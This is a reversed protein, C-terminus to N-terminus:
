HIHKSMDKHPIGADMYTDGFTYYGLKEYFSLAHTQAGLLLIGGEKKSIHLEIENMLYRGHGKGRYEKLVAVRQIKFKKKEFEHIRATAIPKMKDYLIVHECLPELEDVELEEPVQQEDVFVDRRISLADVFAPSTDGFFWKIKMNKVESKSLIARKLM